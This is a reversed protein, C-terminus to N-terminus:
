YSALLKKAEDSLKPWLEDRYIDTGSYSGITKWRRRINDRWRKFEEYLARDEESMADKESEANVQTAISAVALIRRSAETKALGAVLDKQDQQRQAPNKVELSFTM